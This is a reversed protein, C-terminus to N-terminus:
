DSSLEMNVILINTSISVTQWKLIQGLDLRVYLIITTVFVKFLDVLSKISYKEVRLRTIKVTVMPLLAGYLDLNISNLLHKM